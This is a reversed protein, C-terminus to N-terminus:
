AIRYGGAGMGGGRPMMGGMMAPHNLGLLAGYGSPGMHGMPSQMPHQFAGWINGTLGGMPHSMPQGTTNLHGLLSALLGHGMGGAAPHGTGLGTGFGYGPMGGGMGPFGGFMHPQMFQSLNLGPFM